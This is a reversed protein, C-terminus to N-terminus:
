GRGIGELFKRPDMAVGDKLVELHLHPGTSRGSSGVKAIVDGARVRTGVDALNASNHAYRTTLGDGHDVEVVRGFGNKWGSYSVVGDAAARIESGRPSSFDLGHHMAGGGTFPDRRIGFGSSVYGTRVPARTPRVDEALEGEILLEEILSLQADQATLQGSLRALVAELEETSDAEVDSEEAPGGLPPAAGFDFEGDELGGIHTLREGLANLRTAQAQLEGLKAALAAVERQSEAQAGDLATRTTALETRLLTVEALAGPNDGRALWGVAAGAALFLALAGSAAAMVRPDRPCLRLPSKLFKAVIVINM